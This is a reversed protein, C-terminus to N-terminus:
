GAGAKNGSYNLIDVLRSNLIPFPTDYRYHSHPVSYWMRTCEASQERWIENRYMNSTCKETQIAARCEVSWHLFHWERCNYLRGWTCETHEFFSFRSFGNATQRIGARDWSNAIREDFNLIQDRPIFQFESSPLKMSVFILFTFHIEESM